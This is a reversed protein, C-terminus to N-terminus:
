SGGRQPQSIRFYRLYIALVERREDEFADELERVAKIARDLSSILGGADFNLGAYRQFGPEIPNQRCRVGLRTPDARPV